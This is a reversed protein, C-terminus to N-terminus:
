FTIRAAIQIEREGRNQLTTTVQAYTGANVNGNPNAFQPTNTVNYFEGRLELKSGESIRFIKFLSVDYNGMWPGYFTNRGANGFTNGAPARFAGPDFYLAGAGVAGLVRPKYLADAYNTGGNGPCNCPGIDAQATLPSGTALRLIGAVQWGGLIYAAAGSKLYKQGKGLPLEWIHNLVFNHRRDYGAPGYNRRIDANVLFGAQDDGVGLVKSYAYAAGFSVGGSFRRQLNVQLANYNNNVGNHRQQIEATNGYLQNFQQGAAGAGPLAFNLNRVYPLRRGLTGVYSVDLVTGKTLERQVTLNYSHVFPIPNEFPIVFFGLRPAPNIIGNTPIPLFQVPPLTSQSGDIRFDGTSGVAVNYIVPFQTSLTGGTFGFRGTYYSTGYGGRVVTRDNVRYSFGFRPAWNNKDWKVGTAMDVDGVGAVLLSNTGPDYNSAGGSYRPLVPSHLEYRLGLDLTLKSTVQWTDHVFFFAQWVRNTPTVTQFTRFTADTAGILFAGFSNSVTGFAGLNQGPIATTGPNYDFRGRPGFNLGQPQFRDARLRRLDGGFKITHRGSTKTWNNIFNFLNDTNVLPYFVPTGVGPLGSINFRAMGRTSINDPNPNAIGLSPGLPDDISDGNVNAQYRNYGGRAEMLLTPSWQRTFNIIATHTTVRGVTGEGIVNGLIAGQSVDYPSYNYKFFINNRENFNHDIRGDYQYGDYTFPVNGALNNAFASNSPTPFYPILKQTIPNLRNTPIRNGTFPLRGSGDPNGTAPDYVTVGPVASFDGRLMDTTPVTGFTTVGRRERTGQFSGFFFTKNRIVPGGLTGGFQNRVLSPKAQSQVNFFNRARLDDIRNFEFASGHFQNTGGRTIVNMVAGGARGFEANYNSTSINVEQVNEAPPVYITLGLTPNNNDVGDVQINNASNGQGNARYFNTGQPDELATFDAVPPTVGPLLGVLSQFSRNAVPLERVQQSTVTRNIDSRDTQLLPAEGEVTLSETVQGPQLQTDVRLSQAVNLVVNGRISKKFGTREVEVRYTGPGLYPFSFLGEDNTAAHRAIGTQEETVTVEAQPVVAGTPDTVTGLITASVAQSYARPASAVVLVLALAVILKGM